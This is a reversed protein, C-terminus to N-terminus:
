WGMLEPTSTLRLYEQFSYVEGTPFCINKNVVDVVVENGDIPKSSIGLGSPDHLVQEASSGASAILLLIHSFVVRSLYVSDDWRKAGERLANQLAQPIAEAYYHTYFYVVDATELTTAAELILKVQARNGM